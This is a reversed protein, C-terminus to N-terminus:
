QVGLARAVNIRGDGYKSQNGIVDATSRIRTMIADPMMGQTALLAALGAVHPASASTGDAFIYNSLARATDPCLVRACPGLIMEALLESQGGTKSLHKDDGGPASVDIAARGFNSYRAIMDRASTASVCIQSGAECPLSLFPHPNGLNKDENGAASVVVAGRTKAFDVVNAVIQQFAALGAANGPITAGLSMNIVKAKAIIVAYQIGCLIDSFSGSGTKDLVKVAVLRVNPAVGAMIVNSTTVLGSVYTGHFFDDKWLAPANSFACGTQTAVVRASAGDILSQNDGFQFEQHDPDIGSDLIAVKVSPTGTKGAAWAQPAHIQWMNWQRSLILAGLPNTPNGPLPADAIAATTAGVEAPTPAWRATVDNAVLAGTGALAAADTDSLGSTIVTRFESMNAVISGGKAAVSAAFNAPVPGNMVFLHRGNVPVADRSALATASFSRTPATVTSQDACGVAVALVVAGMVPRSRTFSFM